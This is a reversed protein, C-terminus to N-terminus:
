RLNKKLLNNAKSKDFKFANIKIHYKGDETQKPFEKIYNCLLLVKFAIGITISKIKERTSITNLRNTPNYNRAKKLYNDIRNDSLIKNELKKISLPKIPLAQVYNKNPDIGRYIGGLFNLLKISSDKYLEIGYNKYKKYLEPNPMIEEEIVKYWTSGLEAIDRISLILFFAEEKGIAYDTSLIRTDIMLRLESKNNFDFPDIERIPHLFNIRNNNIIPFRFPVIKKRLKNLIRRKTYTQYNTAEKNKETKKDPSNFFNFFINDLPYLIEYL